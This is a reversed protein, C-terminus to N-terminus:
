FATEVRQWVSLPVREKGSAVSGYRVDDELNDVIGEKSGRFDVQGELYLGFVNKRVSLNQADITSSAVSIAFRNREFSCNRLLTLPSSQIRVGYYNDIFTTNEFVGEANSVTNRFAKELVLYKVSFPSSTAIFHIGNWSETSDVPIFRVPFDVTGSIETTGNLLLKALSGMKVTVGAEIKLTDSAGLVFNDELLYPSKSKQLVVNGKSKLPFPTSAFAILAFSLVWALSRGM